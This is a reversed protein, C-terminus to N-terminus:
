GASQAVISHSADPMAWDQVTLAVVRSVLKVAWPTCGPSYAHAFLLTTRACTRLGGGVRTQLEYVVLQLAFCGALACAKPHSAFEANRLRYEINDSGLGSCWLQTTLYLEELTSHPVSWPVLARPRRSREVINSASRQCRVGARNALRSRECKGGQKLMPQTLRDEGNLAEYSFRDRDAIWCENVAENELHCLVCSVTHNKVQVILNSGTSDHPSVSRRRSLEWTRASYRFPKSTLAGVPCIDIM